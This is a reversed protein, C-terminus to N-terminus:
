SLRALQRPGHGWHRQVVARSSRGIGQKLRGAQRGSSLKELRLENSSIPVPPQQQDSFPFWTWMPLRGNTEVWSSHTISHSQSFCLHPFDEMEERLDGESPSFSFTGRVHTSCLWICLCLCTISVRILQEDTMWFVNKVHDTFFYFWHSVGAHTIKGKVVLVLNSRDFGFAKRTRSVSATVSGLWQNWSQVSEIM